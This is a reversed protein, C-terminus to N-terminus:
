SLLVFWFVRQWVDPETCVILLTGFVPHAHFPDPLQNSLGGLSFVRGNFASVQNSLGGLDSCCVTSVCCRM